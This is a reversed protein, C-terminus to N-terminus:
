GAARRPAALVEGPAATGAGVNRPDSRRLLEEALARVDGVSATVVEGSLNVNQEVEKKTALVKDFLLRLATVDGERAKEACVEILEPIHKEIQERAETAFNRKGGEAIPIRGGEKNGPLFRNKGDRELLQGKRNKAPEKGGEKHSKVRSKESTNSTDQSITDREEVDLADASKASPKSLQEGNFVM